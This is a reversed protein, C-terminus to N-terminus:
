SKPGIYVIEILIKDPTEFMIQYYTEENKQVFESRHKPTGFLTQINYKKLFETIEDVDNQKDVKVALHNMGKADYNVEEKIDADIFWVDASSSKYGMMGDDEFIIKWGLKEMFEKYFLSNKEFDINLQLHYLHSNM